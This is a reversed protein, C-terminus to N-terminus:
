CYKITMEVYDEGGDVGGQVAGLTWRKGAKSELFIELTLYIDNGRRKVFEV